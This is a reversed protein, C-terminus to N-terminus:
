RGGKGSFYRSDIRPPLGRGGRIGLAEQVKGAPMAYVRGVPDSIGEVAVEYKAELAMRLMKKCLALCPPFPDVYIIHLPPEKQVIDRLIRFTSQHFVRETGTPMLTLLTDLDVKDLAEAAIERYAIVVDKALEEQRQKRPVEGILLGSGPIRAHLEKAHRVSHTIVLLKRQRGSEARRRLAEIDKLIYANRAESGGLLPWLKSFSFEGSCNNAKELDLLTAPLM